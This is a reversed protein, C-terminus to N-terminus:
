CEQSTSNRLGCTSRLTWRWFFLEMQTTTYSGSKVSNTPWSQVLGCFFNANTTLCSNWKTGMSRLLKCADADVHLSRLTPGYLVAGELFENLFVCDDRQHAKIQRSLLERVVTSSGEDTVLIVTVPTLVPHDDSIVDQLSLKM